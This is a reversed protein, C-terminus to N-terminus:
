SGLDELLLAIEEESDAILGTELLLRDAETLNKTEIATIIAPANGSEADFIAIYGDLAKLMFGEQVMTVSDAASAGSAFASAACAAATILMILSICLRRRLKM